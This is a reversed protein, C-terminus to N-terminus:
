NWKSNHRKVAIALFHAFVEGRVKTFVCRRVSGKAGSFKQGFGVYSDDAVWGVNRQKGSQLYFQLAAMKVYNLQHLCFGDSFMVELICKFFHCFRQSRHM